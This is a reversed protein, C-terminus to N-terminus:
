AVALPSFVLMSFFRPIRLATDPMAGARHSEQIKLIQEKCGPDGCL